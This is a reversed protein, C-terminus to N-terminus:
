QCLGLDNWAGWSPDSSGPEETNWWRAQYKRGLHQVIDDKQAAVGSQWVPLGACSDGTSQKFSAAVTTNASIATLTYSQNTVSVPQGNVLVQDLTYGADPTFTFTQSTGAELSLVGSPAVSGGTGASATVDHYVPDVGGTKGFAVLLTQSATVNPITLSDTPTPVVEVGNIKVSRVEYGPDPTFTFLQNQGEQVRVLGKPSIDGYYMVTTGSCSGLNLWPGWEPHGTGPESSQQWRAEWTEGLHTVRDGQNYSTGSSWVPDTCQGTVEHGKVEATISLPLAADLAVPDNMWDIIKKHTVIRVDPHTLAYDVFRKFAVGMPSNDAFNKGHGGILMPARNGKLRQDLTYKLTVYIEDANFKLLHELNYDFGTVKGNDLSIYDQAAKAKERLNYPLGDQDDPPIIFVYAPMQWLNPHKGVYPKNAFGYGNMITLAPAEDHMTYPWSFNTGDEGYSWGEELSTDYSFGSDVLYQYLADNPLLHPARFGHLSNRPIGVSVIGDNATDNELKWTNYDFLHGDPKHNQTHNGAENGQDYSRKWSAGSAGTYFGTHFGTYTLPEGDYTLPNGTGAPNTRTAHLNTLWDMGAETSNDDTGLSIFQPVKEPSLGGPPAKRSPMVGPQDPAPGQTELKSMASIAYLATAQGFITPEASVYNTWHDFFATETTNFKHEWRDAPKEIDPDQMYDPHGPGGLVAGVPPLEPKIQYVQHHLGQPVQTGLEPSHVFSIGWNNRGLLYDFNDYALKEYFTDGTETVERSAAGSVYLNNALTGWTFPQASGWINGDMQANVLHADIDHRARHGARSDFDRLMMNSLLNSGSWSFWYAFGASESYAKADDLYQQEKTLDYLATAAIAFNDDVSLRLTVEGTAPDTEKLIDRYFENKRDNEYAPFELVDAQKARAYIAKAQTEYSAALATEGVSNFVKAGYALAGATVAMHNPSLAALAERQGNRIDDKPLRWYNHDEGTSVQIIFENNQWTKMLYDLGVKAEDLIDVLNSQSLERTFISPNNEYAQLLVHTTYATTLTFKIYDGADSWGGLMDVTKGSPDAAWAGDNVPGVPRWIPAVADGDHGILRDVTDATGSRQQRLFRLVQNALYGYPNDKVSVTTPTSGPISIEYEGLAKVDSFDLEYNHPQATFPGTGYAAAGFTGSLVVQGGQTVQWTKGTLNEDSMVIAVKDREPFYGALNHRVYVDAYAASSLSMLVALSLVNKKM